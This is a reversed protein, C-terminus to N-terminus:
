IEEGFNGSLKNFVWYGILMVAASTIATRLFFDGVTYTGLYLLDRYTNVISAMPNLINMLRHIDLVLGFIEYSKPLIDIPYFVPTLFFWAMLVVDLIIATDRYYVNVASLLLAIGSIFCTQMLIVIPLLWLHPSFPVGFVIILAFIVLLSLLFNVLQALVSSIPLIERPFYVKKVLNGNGIVSSVSSLVGATFYNWPLLGCLLFIPYSRVQNNPMILTFIVTFVLMMLLPNLLSWVFGLVSSKYRAKLDRVVMYYLLDRYRLLEKIRKGFSM